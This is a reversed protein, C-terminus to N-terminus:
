TARIHVDLNEPGRVVDDVTGVYVAPSEVMEQLVESTYRKAWELMTNSQPVMAPDLGGLDGVM